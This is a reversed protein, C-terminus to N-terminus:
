HFVLPIHRGSVDRLGHQDSCVVGVGRKAVESLGEVAGESVVDEECLM